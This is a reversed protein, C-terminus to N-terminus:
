HAPSDIDMLGTAISSPKLTSHCHKRGAAKLKTSNLERSFYTVVTGRRSRSFLRKKEGVTNLSEYAIYRWSDYDLGVLECPLDRVKRSFSGKVRAEAVNCVDTFGFESDANRLATDSGFLASAFPLLGVMM